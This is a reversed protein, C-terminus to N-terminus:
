RPIPGPFPHKDEEKPGDHDYRGDDPAGHAPRHAMVLTPLNDRRLVSASATPTGFPRTGVRRLRYVFIM